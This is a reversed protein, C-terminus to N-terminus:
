LGRRERKRRDEERRDTSREDRRREDALRRETARRDTESRRQADRDNKETTMEGDGREAGDVVDNPGIFSGGAENGLVWRIQAPIEESHEVRLTIREGIRPCESVEIRFGGRSVDLIIVDWEAGDSNIIVAPRRLDIRPARKNYGQVHAM